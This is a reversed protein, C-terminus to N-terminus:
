SLVELAHQYNNTTIQEEIVEPDTEETAHITIWVTDEIAFGARKVGPKSVFIAPAEIRRTEGESRVEIVGAAVINIHETLHIKGTLVVGAPIVMKRAYTGPAFVHEIDLEVQPMEKVMEELAFVKDDIKALDPM